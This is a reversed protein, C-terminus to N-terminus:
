LKIADWALSFALEMNSETLQYSKCEKRNALLMMPHFIFVVLLEMPVDKIVKQEIGKQLINYIPLFHKEIDKHNVLETYPTNSFQEVYQYLHQYKKAFEFGNFWLQKFIDRLPKSEDFNQLLCESLKKKIEVYTTVLLDEKNDYYVYLTAPSVNAEQAIKSVSSAVFGIKNVLKITAKIIAQHKEEDRIRM